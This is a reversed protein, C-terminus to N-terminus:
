REKKETLPEDSRAAIILRDVDEAPRLHEVDRHRHPAAPGIRPAEDEEGAGTLPGAPDLLGPLAEVAQERVPLIRLGVSRKEGLGALEASLKRRVSGTGTLPSHRSGPDRHRTWPPVDCPEEPEPVGNVRATM